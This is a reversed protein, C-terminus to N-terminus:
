ITSHHREITTIERIKWKHNTTNKTSTQKGFSILLNIHKIKLKGNEYGGIWGNSIYSFIYIQTNSLYKGNCGNCIWATFFCDIGISLILYFCHRSFYISSSFDFVSAFLFAVVREMCLRRIYPINFLIRNFIFYSRYVDTRFIPCLIAICVCVCASFRECVHFTTNKEVLLTISISM